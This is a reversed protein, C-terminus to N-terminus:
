AMEGVYIFTDVISEIEYAFIRTGNQDSPLTPM